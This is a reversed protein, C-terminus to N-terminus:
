KLDEAIVNGPAVVLYEFKGGSMENLIERSEDFIASLLGEVTESSGILNAQYRTAANALRGFFEIKTCGDLLENESFLKWLESLLWGAAHAHPTIVVRPAPYFNSESKLPAKTTFAVDAGAWGVSENDGKYSLFSRDTIGNQISNLQCVIEAYNHQRM